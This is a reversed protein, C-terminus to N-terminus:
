RSRARFNQTIWVAGDRDVHVGIGVEDVAPDLLNERHSPSTLLAAQLERTLREVPDGPRWLRYPQSWAVNETVHSWCCLQEALGPNHELGVEEAMRASWAQAVAEVDEAPRLPALGHAVRDANVLDVMLTAARLDAGRTSPAATSVALGLLLAAALGVVLLVLPRDLADRDPEVSRSRSRVDADM